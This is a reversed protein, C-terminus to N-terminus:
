AVGGEALAAPHRGSGEPRPTPNQLGLNRRHRSVTAQGIGLKTAIRTDSLGARNLQTIQELQAPSITRRAKRTPKRVTAIAAHEILTHVQTNRAHAIAVFARYVDDPLYISIHVSM